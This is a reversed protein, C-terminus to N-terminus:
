DTLSASTAATFVPAGARVSEETVTGKAWAGDFNVTFPIDVGDTGGGYSDPKVMVERVYALHTEAETDEVIVELMLTKCSDGTKQELAIDRLVPYLAKEPDAKYPSASMSPSAGNDVTRTEGLINKTQSIEWNMDVRMEEIDDGLIEYSAKSADSVKKNFSTDIYHKMAKRELKM